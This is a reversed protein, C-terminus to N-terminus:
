YCNEPCVDLITWFVIVPGNGRNDFIIVQRKAALTQLLDPNWNSATSRLGLVMVLARGAHQCYRCHSDTLSVDPTICCVM